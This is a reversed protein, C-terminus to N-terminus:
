NHCHKLTKNSSTLINSVLFICTLFWLIYLFCPCNLPRKLAVGTKIRKRKRKKLSRPPAKTGFEWDYNPKFYENSEVENEDYQISSKTLDIENVSNEDFIKKDVSNKDVFNGDVNKEVDNVFTKGGFNDDEVVNRDHYLAENDNITDCCQPDEEHYSNYEFNNEVLNNNPSYPDYDDHAYKSLHAWSKLWSKDEELTAAIFAFTLIKFVITKRM